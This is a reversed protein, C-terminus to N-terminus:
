YCPPRGFTYSISIGTFMYWDNTKPNNFKEIKNSSTTAPLIHEKIFLGDDIDDTLTYRIRTEIAFAFKDFLKTKYGIGFPIAIGRKSKYNISIAPAVSPALSQATKYQFAALELIFYPTKTLGRSALNYEFFNFEIGATLETINKKFSNKFYQRIENKADLDNGRISMSTLTARYAIRPNKNFKYILGFAPANPRIFTSSGIDGVYNSGGVFIGIENVQANMLNTLGIFLLFLYQKKM